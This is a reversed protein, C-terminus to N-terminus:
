GPADLGYAAVFHGTEEDLGRHLVQNAVFSVGHINSGNRPPIAVSAERGRAEENRALCVYFSQIALRTTFPNLDLYHLVREHTASLNLLVRRVLRDKLTAPDGTLATAADTDLHYTPAVAQRRLSLRIFNFPLTFGEWVMKPYADAFARCAALDDVIGPKGALSPFYGCCRDMDIAAWDALESWVADLANPDIWEQLQSLRPQWAAALPEPSPRDMVDLLRALRWDSPM